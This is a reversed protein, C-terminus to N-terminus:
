ADVALRATLIVEPIGALAHLVSCRAEAENAFRQFEDEEVGPVHGETDIHLRSLLPAIGAKHLQVRVSTHLSEPVHGAAGLVATLTMTYCAAQAAAILQEPNTGMGEGFRAGYSFAGQLVGNGVTVTGSGTRIDGRWDASGNLAIM